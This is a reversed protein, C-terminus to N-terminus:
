RLPKPKMENYRQMFRQKEADTKLGAMADKLLAPNAIVRRVGEDLRSDAGGSIAQDREANAQVQRNQSVVEAPVYAGPESGFLTPDGGVQYLAKSNIGTRRGPGDDSDDYRWQPVDKTFDKFMQKALRNKEILASRKQADDSKPSNIINDYKSAATRFEKAKSDFANNGQDTREQKVAQAALWLGHEATNDPKPVDAYKDYLTPDTFMKSVLGADAGGYKMAIQGAKEANIRAVYEGIQMRNAGRQQMNQLEIRMRQQRQEEAFAADSKYKADFQPDRRAITLKTADIKGARSLEYLNVSESLPNKGIEAHLINVTTRAEKLEDAVRQDESLRLANGQLTQKGIEVQQGARVPETVAVAASSTDRIQDNETPVGTLKGLVLKRRPHDLPLNMVERIEATTIDNVKKKLSTEGKAFDGTGEGYLKEVGAYGMDILDQPDVRGSLIAERVAKQREANPNIRSGIFSGIQKLAEGNQEM